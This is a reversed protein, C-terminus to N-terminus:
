KGSAMAAGISSLQSGAASINKAREAERQYELDALADRTAMYQQEIADKRQLGSLAIQSMTDAMASNQAAKEMAISEATGGMVAATGAARKAREAMVERQKEIAAVADARETQNENYRRNYWQENDRKKQRVINGQNKYAKSGAVASTIAGAIGMLAGTGAQTLSGATQAFQGINDLLGM